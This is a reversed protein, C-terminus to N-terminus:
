EISRVGYIRKQVIQESLWTSIQDPTDAFHSFIDAISEANELQKFLVQEGRSLSFMEAKYDPRWLMISRPTDINIADAMSKNLKQMFVDRKASQEALTVDTALQFLLAVPFFFSALRFGPAMDFILKSPDSENILAFSEGDFHKDSSRQVQQLLWDLEAVEALYPLEVLNPHSMIFAPLNQGYDAWDFQTKPHTLLFERALARFDYEKMFYALSPFSISLARIGNEIFNNHYIQVGPEGAQSSEASFIAKILHQQYAM